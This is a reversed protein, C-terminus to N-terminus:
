TTVTTYRIYKRHFCFSIITMADMNGDAAKVITGCLEM